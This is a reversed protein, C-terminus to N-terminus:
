GTIIKRAQVWPVAKVRGSDLDSIRREIEESWAAEVDEDTSADLSAILSAALESRDTDPLQMATDFLLKADTNM